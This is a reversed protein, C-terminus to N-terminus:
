LMPLADTFSSLVIRKCNETLQSKHMIGLRYFKSAGNGTLVRVIQILRLGVGILKTGSRM